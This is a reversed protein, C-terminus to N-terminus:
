EEIQQRETKRGAIRITEKGTWASRNELGGRIAKLNLSTEDKRLDLESDSESKKQDTQVYNALQTKGTCWPEPM